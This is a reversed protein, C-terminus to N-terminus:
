SGSQVDVTKTAVVGAYSARIEVTGVALAHIEGSSSVTVVTPQSSSWTATTTVDSTSQDSLTVVAHMQGTAGPVMHNIPGTIDLRVITPSPRYSAHGCAGLAALAAAGVTVSQAILIIRAPTLPLM